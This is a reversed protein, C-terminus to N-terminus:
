SVCMRNRQYKKSKVGNFTPLVLLFFDFRDKVYNGNVFTSAMLVTGNSEPDIDDESIPISYEEGIKKLKAPPEDKHWYWCRNSPHKVFETENPLMGPKESRSAMIGGCVLIMDKVVVGSTYRVKYYGNENNNYTMGGTGNNTCREEENNHSIWFISLLGWNDAVMMVTRHNRDDGFIVKIFLLGIFVVSKSPFLM